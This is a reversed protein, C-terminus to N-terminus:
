LQRTFLHVLLFTLPLPTPISYLLHLLPLHLLYLIVPLHHLKQLSTLLFQFLLILHTHTHTIPDTTLLSPLVLPSLSVQPLFPADSEVNSRASLHSSATEKTPFSAEDFVVNRPLYVKHSLPDLCRHGKHCYGLFICQKSRFELKNATYPRLLPFCKCGFVRLLSYDPSRHYLKEFPSSNALVPTPLRNIIYISTLFADVWFRKSLGSHALLTLGTELVHRLKREAV